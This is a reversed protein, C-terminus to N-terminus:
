ASPAPWELITAGLKDMDPKDLGPYARMPTTFGTKAGHGPHGPDFGDQMVDRLVREAMMAAGSATFDYSDGIALRARNTRCYLDEGEVVVFQRASERNEESPEEPWFSSQLQLLQRFPTLQMPLAVVSGVQYLARALVSAEAYAEINPVPGLRRKRTEPQDIRGGTTYYGTLVDALNAAACIRDDRKGSEGFDFSRELRGVPISMLKHNRRVLVGERVSDLMTRFTGRSIFDLKSFAVRITTPALGWLYRSRACVRHVLFDSALISFGVGPMIMVNVARAELHHNDLYHTGNRVCAKVLPEATDPFPGAVNLLVAVDLLAKDLGESDTVAVVRCPFGSEEAAERLKRANRGALLPPAQWAKGDLEAQALRQKLKEVILRGTFGYAGYIMLRNKM